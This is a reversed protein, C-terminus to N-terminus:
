VGLRGESGYLVAMCLLIGHNGIHSRAQKYQLASLEEFISQYLADAHSSWACLCM